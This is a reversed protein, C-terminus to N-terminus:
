LSCFQSIASLFANRPVSSSRRALLDKRSGVDKLSKGRPFARCLFWRSASGNSRQHCVNVPYIDYTWPVVEIKKEKCMVPLHQHNGIQITQLPRPSPGSSQDCVLWHRDTDTYIYWNIGTKYKATSLARIEFAPPYISPPRTFPIHIALRTNNRCSGKTLFDQRTVRM